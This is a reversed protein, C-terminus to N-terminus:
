FLGDRKKPDAQLWARKTSPTMRPTTMQTSNSRMNSYARSDLSGAVATDAHCKGKVKRRPLSAACADTPAKCFAITTVAVTFITMEMAQITTTPKAMEIPTAQCRNKANTFM